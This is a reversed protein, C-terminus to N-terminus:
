QKETADLILQELPSAQNAPNNPQLEPNIIPAYEQQLRQDIVPQEFGAPTQPMVVPMQELPVEQLATNVNLSDPLLKLVHLSADRVIPMTQATALWEPYTEEEKYIITILIYGLVVLMGGKLLGLFLGMINDFWGVDSGKKIYRTIIKGVIGLTVVVLFYTGMVGVIAAGTPSGIYQSMYATSKPALSFTILAGGVWTLLSIFEKIFGRYLSIIGTIFMVLFVVADFVNINMQAEVM